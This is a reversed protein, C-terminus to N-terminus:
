VPLSDLGKGLAALMQEVSPYNPSVQANHAGPRPPHFCIELHLLREDLYYSVVIFYEEFSFREIGIPGRWPFQWQPKGM